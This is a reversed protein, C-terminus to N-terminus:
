NSQGMVKTIAWTKVLFKSGYLLSLPKSVSFDLKRKSDTLCFKGLFSRQFQLRRNWVKVSPLAKKFCFATTIYKMCEVSGYPFSESLFVESKKIKRQYKLYINCFTPSEAQATTVAQQQQQKPM